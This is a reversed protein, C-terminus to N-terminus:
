LIIGVAGNNWIRMRETPLANGRSTGLRLQTSGGGIHISEICSSHSADSAFWLRVKGQEGGSVGGRIVVDCTGGTSEGGRVYLRATPISFATNDDTDSTTSSGIGVNGCNYYINTAAVGNTWKSGTIANGNLLVNTANLTGNVNMKYTASPATGIGVNGTVGLDNNINVGASNITMRISTVTTYFLHSGNTATSVYQINGANTARTNGSIIIQTNTAGIYNSSKYYRRYYTYSKYTIERRNRDNM